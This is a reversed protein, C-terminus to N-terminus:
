KVRGAIYDDIASRLDNECRGVWTTKRDRLAKLKQLSEARAGGISEADIAETWALSLELYTPQEQSTSAPDGSAGPDIAIITHNKM